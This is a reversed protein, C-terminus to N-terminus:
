AIGVRAAALPEPDLERRQSQRGLPAVAAVGEVASIGSTDVGRIMVVLDARTTLELERVQAASQSLTVGYVGAGIGILTILPGAITAARRRGDVLNAHAVEGEVGRRALAGGARAVLPVVLPSLQQLAVSASFILFFASVIVLIPDSSAQAFILGTGTVATSPLGWVWRGATMVRAADAVHRLADLPRVRAATAVGGPSGPALSRRRQGGRARRVLASIQVDLLHTPVGLRRLLALQVPVLVLGFAIGAGGALTGVVVSEGALLLRLQRRTAGSVRLLALDRRRENVTFAFASGIVFVSLFSAVMLTLGVLAEVDSAAARDQESADLAAAAQLILASSEVLAVGLTVCLLTGVFLTWSERFTRVAMM